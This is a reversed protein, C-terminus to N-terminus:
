LGWEKLEDQTLAAFAEDPIVFPPDITAGVKPRQKKKRTPKIPILRAIPHKGRAIVIEQGAEVEALYRSLHTKAQHTTITTMAFNLKQELKTM